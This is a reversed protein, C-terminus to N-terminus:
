LMLVSVSLSFIETSKFTLLQRCAARIKALRLGHILPNLVTNSIAHYVSLLVKLAPSIHALNYRGHLIQFFAVLCFNMVSLLHPACTTVAKHRSQASGSFCVKLINVYTLAILLLPIFISIAGYAMEYINNFAKPTCALRLLLYNDCYLNHIVNGCLQLVATPSLYGVSVTVISYLWAVATLLAVRGWTMRAHYQLPHCISLYRDYAIVTLIILEVCGYSYLSFVQVFCLSYSITHVHTLTHLLLFPLLVTGGYVENVFLSCLFVYMPEHLSRTAAISAVLLMNSVVVFVYVCLLLVFGAAQLPWWDIFATLVFHSQSSNMMM